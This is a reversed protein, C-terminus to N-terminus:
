KDRVPLGLDRRYESDGTGNLQWYPAIIRHTKRATTKMIRENGGFGSPYEEEFYEITHPFDPTFHISLKRPIETYEITYVTLDNKASDAETDHGPLAASGASKSAVARMPRLTRHKLRTYITGPIVRIDGTPLSDPAIRIKTWIEDETHVKDVRYNKDGEQQFYSNTSVKYNNRGANLQTFVHGCWEQVSTTIKLAHPFRELNLPTFVSTMISYPYLGTEFRRVADGKRPEGYRAQNLEYRTLEAEGQFWYNEFESTHAHDSTEGGTSCSIIFLLLSLMAFVLPGQQRLMRLKKREKM